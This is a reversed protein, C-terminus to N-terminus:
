ITVVRPAVAEEGREVEVFTVGGAETARRWDLATIEQEVIKTDERVGYIKVADPGQPTMMFVAVRKRTESCQTITLRFHWPGDLNSGAVPSKEGPKIITGQPLPKEIFTTKKARKVVNDSVTIQKWKGDRGIGLIVSQPVGGPSRVNLAGVLVSREGDPDEIVNFRLKMPNTAM